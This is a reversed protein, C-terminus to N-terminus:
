LLAAVGNMRPDKDSALQEGAEFRAFRAGGVENEFRRSVGRTRDSGGYAAARMAAKSLVVLRLVM